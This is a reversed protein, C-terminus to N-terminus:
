KILKLIDGKFYLIQSNGLDGYYLVKDYGGIKKLIKNPDGWAIICQDETMGVKVKASRLDNLFFKNKNSFNEFADKQILIVKSELNESGLINIWGNKEPQDFSYKNPFNFSQNNIELIIGYGFNVKGFGVKSIKYDTNGDFIVTTNDLSTLQSKNKLPKFVKNELKNKISDIYNNIIFVDTSQPEFIYEEKEDKIKLIDKYDNFYSVVEFTKNEFNKIDAFSIEVGNTKKIKFVEIITIKRGVIGAKKEKSLLVDDFNMFSGDYPVAKIIQQKSKDIIEIQSSAYLSILLSIISLYLKMINM